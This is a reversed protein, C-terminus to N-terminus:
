MVAVYLAVYILWHFLLVTWCCDLSCRKWILVAGISVAIVVYVRNLLTVTQNTPIRESVTSWADTTVKNTTADTFVAHAPAMTAGSGSKLKDSATSPLSPRAVATKTGRTSVPQSGSEAGPPIINFTDCIGMETCINAAKKMALLEDPNLLESQQSSQYKNFVLRTIQQDSIGTHDAFPGVWIVDKAEGGMEQPITSIDIYKQMTEMYDTGLIVFKAQTKKDIFGSFMNYLMKFYWPCNIIFLNKLREPYNAQDIALMSKVYLIAGIDLTMTVHNMDFVTVSQTIHHSFKESAYKLRIEMAEMSQIHFQILEEVEFVKKVDDWHSQILGTREWYVPAGEKDFGYHAAPILEINPWQSVRDPMCLITNPSYQLGRPRIPSMLKHRWSNCDIAMRTARSMSGNRAVLFRLIDHDNMDLSAQRGIRKRFEDLVDQTLPLKTDVVWDSGDETKGSM